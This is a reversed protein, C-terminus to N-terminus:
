WARTRAAWWSLSSGSVAVQSSWAVRGSPYDGFETDEEPAFAIEVHNGDPVIATRCAADRARRWVVFLGRLNPM